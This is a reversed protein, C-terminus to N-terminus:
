AAAGLTIISEVQERQALLEETSGSWAVSGHDLVYQRQALRM